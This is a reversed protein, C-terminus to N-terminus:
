VAQVLEALPRGAELRTCFEQTCASYREFLARRIGACFEDIRENYLVLRIVLTHLPALVEASGKGACELGYVCMPFLTAERPAARKQTEDTSSKELLAAFYIGLIKHM